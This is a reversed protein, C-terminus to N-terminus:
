GRSRAMRFPLLRRVWASRFRDLSLSEHFAAVPQGLLQTEILSRAYFPTDELTQAIRPPAASESRMARAIRWRTAALPVAPPVQVPTAAGARDILVALSLPGAGRREVDYIVLTGSDVTARAWNWGTFADELPEDGGNSDLYGAGTWRLDPREFDLEVHAVPAIPNWRHRGAADLAYPRHTPLNPVVRIRGRLRSPIPVTIEDVQIDLASGDWQLASPGIVFRDASRTVAGRGRETMSWRKGAKGYLAVNLACHQMPDAAGRRRASAYFPSFVSGVFAILTLGHLGDASLADLYWWRYGGSPVDADFDFHMM